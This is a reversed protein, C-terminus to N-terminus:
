QLGCLRMLEERTGDWDAIDGGPGLRPLEVIRVDCQLGSLITAVALAYRQGPADNDPLIIVRKGRLPTWDTLQPSKSGCMSTTAWLDYERDVLDACKAGETVIVTPAAAVWALRYLPRLGPPGKICWETGHLSVLRFEKKGAPGNFRLEFAVDRGTKDVYPWAPGIAFGDKEMWYSMANIAAEATPFVRPPKVPKREVAARKETAKVTVRVGSLEPPLAVGARTALMVLADRFQIGHLRMAFDFCDGGESCAWCKYSQREHNVTFSPNHDDHFPCLGKFTGGQQHLEVSEGVLDVIDTRSRVLQKFAASHAPTM